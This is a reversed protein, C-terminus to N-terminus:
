REALGRHTAFVASVPSHDSLRIRLGDPRAVERRLVPWASPPDVVRLGCVLLHDLSDSATACCLGHEEALEGYVSTDQPRVNLDGGFILPSAGAFERVERAATRLEDEAIHRLRAGASAHLNAVVLSSSLRTLAMTRREPSPGPALVVDRRESIEGRVLTLNSGGENSGILDPNLRALIRRVPALSNRSTLSRHSQAGCARELSDQWHPPCEQLLAVDWEASAIVQEFSGRLDRNVQAHTENRESLRLLRSRWTRLAPDPPFDRGHFLNWTLATIPKAEIPGPPRHAM